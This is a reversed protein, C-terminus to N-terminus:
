KIELSLNEALTYSIKQGEITNKYPAEEHSYESIKSCKFDKFKNLVFDMVKIEDDSFISKDCPTLSKL